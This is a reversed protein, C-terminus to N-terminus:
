WELPTLEEGPGKLMEKTVSIDRAAWGGWNFDEIVRYPIYGYGRDGWFKSWSNKFKVVQREDDYGVACVAHGGFNTGPNAPYKIVGHVPLAWEQHLPGGIIVPGDILAAKMETLNNVSWYSGIVAWRAILEAWFKPKGVNIGKDTYPWASEIPVGVKNLVKMVARLYTGGWQGNSGDIKKCNQYLWQESYDYVKGSKGYKGEAIEREHEVTEQFEKLAAGAFGVCTPRQGQDKVSFM